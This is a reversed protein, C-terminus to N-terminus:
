IIDFFSVEYIYNDDCANNELFISDGFDFSANHSLAIIGKFRTSNNEFLCRNFKLHGIFDSLVAGAQHSRNENFKCNVFAMEGTYNFVVGGSGESYNEEFVCDIFSLSADVNYIAGGFFSAENNIFKCNEFICTAKNYIAGGGDRLADKFSLGQFYANKFTINKFIFTLKENLLRFIRASEKADISHGMGNIVVDNDLIVYSENDAKCDYGVFTIGDKLMYDGRDFVVDRDLYVKGSAYDLNQLESFTMPMSAFVDEKFEVVCTNDINHHSEFSCNEKILKNLNFIINRSQNQFECDKLVLTDWNYIDTCNSSINDKFTCNIAKLFGHNYIAGGEDASNNEFTCYGLTLYKSYSNIAGGRANSANIFNINKIIVNLNTRVNFIRTKGQANISYGCGDIIIGDLDIEIGNEYILEEGGDLIVDECLKIIKHGSHILNDLQKFNM